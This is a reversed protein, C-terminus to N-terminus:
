SLVGIIEQMMAGWLEDKSGRQNEWLETVSALLGAREEDPMGRVASLSAAQKKHGASISWLLAWAVSGSTVPYTARLKFHLSSEISKSMAIRKAHALEEATARHTFPNKFPAGKAYTM